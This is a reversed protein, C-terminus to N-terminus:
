GCCGTNPCGSEVEYDTREREAPTSERLGEVSVAYRITEGALPHNGDVEVEDGTVSKVVFQRPGDETQVIFTMGIAITDPTAFTSRPVRKVLDPSFEGYRKEPPLSIEFNTGVRTGELAEELGSVINGYGHLYHIPESGHSSYVTEGNELTMTYHISVMSDKQVQMM